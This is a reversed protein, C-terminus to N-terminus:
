RVQSLDSRAIREWVELYQEASRFVPQLDRPSLGIHLLDAFFDPYMGVHAMGDTNFDFTRTGQRSADLRLTAGPSLIPIPYSIRTGSAQANREGRSGGDCADAGFRPGILSVFSQDTSVGIAARDAGGLRSVAYSYPQAWARSSNSCNNAPAGSVQALDRAHGVEALGITVMGGLAAIRRLQDDTKAYESRRQGRMAGLLTTHGAVVPRHLSEALALTENGAKMSMHDVDVIFHQALLEGILYRGMPTLGERNCHGAPTDYRPPRGVVGLHHTVSFANVVLTRRDRNLDFEIGAPSCNEVELWKGTMFKNAFNWNADSPYIAMGGFQNDALHIPFFHRVGLRYYEQLTGRIEDQTCSGRATCPFPDDAEIGLVVALQGRNITARAEEPSTVIHYWGGDHRAIYSEMDRAAQLQTPISAWDKCNARAGHAAQCLIESNVALMVMVRLGGQFARYLWDAYMQQHVRTDWRPWGKYDDCGGTRHFPVGFTLGHGVACRKLASQEDGFPVGRFLDGGFALNAFQHAHTDAFGWVRADPTAIPQVWASVARASEGSTMTAAVAYRIWTGLPVREDTFDTRDATVTALRDDPADTCCRAVGGDVLPVREAPSSSRYIAYSGADAVAPWHLAVRGTGWAGSPTASADLHAPGPLGGHAPSEREQRQRACGATVLAVVCAVVVITAQRARQHILTTPRKM